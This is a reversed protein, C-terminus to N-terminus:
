TSHCLRGEDVRGGKIVDAIMPIAKRMVKRVRLLGTFMAILDHVRQVKNHVEFRPPQDHLFHLRM